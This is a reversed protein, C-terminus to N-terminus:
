RPHLATISSDDVSWPMSKSTSKESGSERSQQDSENTRRISFGPQQPVPLTVTFSNLMILINEMTPRDSLDDQVCLLGIHICRIVENTQYDRGMSPDVLELPSNDGWLRWAYSVLDANGDREYFSSNKKGSIIELILVGFSYIDSKVSYHGHIAYEPSMYGYTGVIRGTNAQTQDIGFIRAMGFDSIKPNFDADLLINSVKLDRHIIMLRSDRHLYLVGRAIGEIIKYRRRWDLYRRKEPDFLFYDLSKNAIFEYILIKEEGELCYGLLRALNRHQLKAVLVVENKFERAGQTSGRSLRKVAIEQGSPLRGMFVEGFGGHGLKNSDSFKNTAAEITRFQFQLSEATSIDDGDKKEPESRLQMKSRRRRRALLCYAGILLLLSVSVPVVIAIVTVASSKSKRESSGSSINPPPAPVTPPPAMVITENYFPYLEYRINCSSAMVRGGIRRDCCDPLLNIAQRLCSECDLRTLDPTCQVLSYITQFVTFNAKKTAFKRPSSAAMSAADIMLSALSQSFENVQNETINQRNWLYAAPGFRMTGVISQNSYRLMCEDYWIVTEKEVPCKQLTDNVAFVVCDRCVDASVDGRCLFIGYATDPTQGATANAFATEYSANPSSLSSLVTRLNSFYTSNRTFTTTNPCTHYLYTPDAAEANFSMLFLASILSFTIKFVSSRFLSM